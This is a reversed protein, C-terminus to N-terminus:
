NRIRLSPNKNEKKPTQPKRIELRTTASDKPFTFFLHHKTVHSLANRTAATPSQPVWAFTTKERYHRWGRQRHPFHSFTINQSTHFDMERPLPPAKHCELSLRKKGTIADDGSDIPFTLFPSTKHRTFTCKVHCRHSKTASLRFDNREEIRTTATDIPFTLLPSTKHRTFTCKAHCRHPKLVWAFPRNKERIADDGSDMPTLWPSPKRRSLASIQLCVCTQGILDVEKYFHPIQLLLRM